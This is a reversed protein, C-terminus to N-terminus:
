KSPDYQFYATVAFDAATTAYLTAPLPWQIQVQNGNNLAMPRQLDYTFGVGATTIQQDWTKGDVSITFPIAVPAAPTATPKLAVMSVAMTGAATATGTYSLPTGIAGSLGWNSIMSAVVGVGPVDNLQALMNLPPVITSTGLVAAQSGVALTGNGAILMDNKFQSQKAPIGLTTVTAQNANAAGSYDMIATASTTNLLGSVEYVFAQLIGGGTGGSFTVIVATSAPTLSPDVFIAAGVNGSSATGPVIAFHDASGGITASAPVPTGGQALCQSVVVLTNGPTTAAPLTIPLTTLSTDLTRSASQVIQPITTSLSATDLVLRYLEFYPLQIIPGTDLTSTMNGANFGTADPKTVFSYRGLDIDTM